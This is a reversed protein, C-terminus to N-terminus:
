GRRGGSARRPQRGSSRGTMASGSLKPWATTQAHSEGNERDHEEGDEVALEPDDGRCVRRPRHNVRERGAEIERGHCEGRDTEPVEDGGSDRSKALMFDSVPYTRRPVIVATTNKRNLRRAPL